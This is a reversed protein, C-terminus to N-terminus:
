STVMTTSITSSVTDWIAISHDWSSSIIKSEEPWLVSTVCGKHGELKALPSLIKVKITNADTKRKKKKKDSANESERSVLSEEVEGTVNKTDWLLITNDWSGSCFSHNDKPSIAVCEVSESHGKCVYDCIIKANDTHVNEASWVRLTQDKSATVFTFGDKSRKQFIDVAKIPSSHAKTELVLKSSNKMNEEKSAETTWYRIVGDYSSAIYEISISTKNQLASTVAVASIWDDHSNSTVQKPAKM